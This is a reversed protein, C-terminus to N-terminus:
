KFEVRIENRKYLNENTYRNGIEQLIKKCWTQYLQNDIPKDRVKFSPDLNIKAKITETIGTMNFQSSKKVQQINYNQLDVEILGINKPILDLPIVGIPAIIYTKECNTNFGNRFDSLNAKAEIGVTKFLPEKFVKGKPSSCFQGKIQLGIVDIISKSEKHKNFQTFSNLYECYGTEIEEGIVKCGKNKLIYKGIQKLEYHIDSENKPKYNNELLM